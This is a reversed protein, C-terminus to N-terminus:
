MVVIHSVREGTLKQIQYIQDLLEAPTLNREMGDITSACFRCGMRCGVQSSICVSNGHHYIMLVSEIMHGDHLEFLYKKTGDLKSEQVQVQRLSDIHYADSLRERLEKSLNTMEDFSGALKQHLWSYIQGARFAKDGAALLEAELEKKTYSKIDKKLRKEMYARGEELGQWFSDMM